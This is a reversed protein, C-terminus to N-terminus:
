AAPRPDRPRLRVRVLGPAGGQARPLARRPRDRAPRSSVLRPRPRHGQGGGDLTGFPRVPRASRRAAVAGSYFRLMAADDILRVFWNRIAMGPILLPVNAPVTM